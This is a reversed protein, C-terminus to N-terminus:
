LDVPDYRIFSGSMLQIYSAEAGAISRQDMGWKFNVERDENATIFGTFTLTAASLLYTGDIPLDIVYDQNYFPTIQHLFAEGNPDITTGRQGEVAVHLSDEAGFVPSGDLKLQEFNFKFGMQIIGSTLHIGATVMYTKDKKLIVRSLTEDVLTSYQFQRVGGMSRKIVPITDAFINKSSVIVRLDTVTTATVVDAIRMVYHAVGNGDVYDVLGSSGPVFDFAVAKGNADGLLYADVWLEGLAASVDISVVSDLQCRLGGVYGVGAEVDVFGSAGPAALFGTGFFSGAGYLDVNSLRERDDVGNLRTTLDLQWTEAPTNIATLAQAGTLELLFSRVLNNGDVGNASKTKSILAPLYTVAILVGESDVLGVWNFSYDGLTSDLTVSYVVLNNNVYGSKGVPQTDVIDGADPMAEIRDVPEEGLGSINALVFSNIDLTGAVFKAAIQNEGEITIFSM